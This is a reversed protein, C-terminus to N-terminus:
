LCIPLIEGWNEELFSACNKCNPWSKGLKGNVWSAAKHDEILRIATHEDATLSKLNCLALCGGDM